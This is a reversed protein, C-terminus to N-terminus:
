RFFRDFVKFETTATSRLATKHANPLTRELCCTNSSTGAIYYLIMSRLWRDAVYAGDRGVRHDISTQHAQVDDDDDAALMIRGVSGSSM